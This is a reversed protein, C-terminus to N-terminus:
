RPSRAQDLAAPEAAPQDLVPQDLVLPGEAVAAAGAAFVPNRGTRRHARWALAAAVVMGLFAASGAIVFLNWTVESWWSLRAVGWSELKVTGWGGLLGRDPVFARPGRYVSPWAGFIGFLLIVATALWWRRARRASMALGTLMALFPVIWVWHHDWSIPSVLVGTLGVLTWGPVPQGARCLAAGAVIGILGVAITVPLWTPQGTAASGAARAFVGLLSQNVLANVAGTKGPQLFYGTLWWYQSPGPLFVFGILVTLAFAGAAMAAHRVKGVLLLYPIFILPILKMAAGIAIGAGQWRPRGPRTLDFVVILMILPEIQGFYLSHWVPESWLGVAGTALAGALRIRGQKGMAGLVLWTTLPVALVSIVTLLWRLATIPALSGVAFLVAAFPPYTFRIEPSLQWQYLASPLERAILGGDNYVNLDFYTLLYGPHAIVDAAYATLAAMFLLVAM